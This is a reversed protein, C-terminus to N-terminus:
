VVGAPQVAPERRTFLGLKRGGQRAEGEWGTNYVVTRALQDFSRALRGSTLPEGRGLSRSLAGDNPLRFSTHYMLHQEFDAPSIADSMNHRNVVLRLKSESYGLRAGLQLVRAANKLAALEPITVLLVTDAMDLAAITNQDLIPSCDVVVYAYHIRLADLVREYAESKVSEAQEFETPAALVSVGATHKVLTTTLLDDDLRDSFPLLDVITRVPSLNLAVPVDGGFFHGDVLAVTQRTQRQIAVALNVAIATTGVGGKTGRVAIVRGRTPTAAQEVLLQRRRSNREHVQVITAALADVDLPRLLCGRAGAGVCAQVHDQENLLVLVPTDGLAEDLETVLNASESAFGDLLIVDPRMRKAVTTARNSPTVEANVKLRSDEKLLSELPSDDANVATLLLVHIEPSTPM